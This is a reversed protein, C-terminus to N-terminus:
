AKDGDSEPALEEGLAHAVRRALATRIVRASPASMWCIFAASPLVIALVPHGGEILTGLVTIGAGSSLLSGLSTFSAPPSGYMPLRLNMLGTIFADEPVLEQQTYGSSALWEMVLRGSRMRRRGANARSAPLDLLPSYLVGVRVGLLTAMLDQAARRIEPRPDPRDIWSGPQAFRTISADAVVVQDPTLMESMATVRIDQRSFSYDVSTTVSWRGEPTGLQVDSDPFILTM